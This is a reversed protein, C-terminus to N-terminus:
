DSKNLPWFVVWLFSWWYQFIVSITKIFGHTWFTKQRIYHSNIWHLKDLDFIAGSQLRNFWVICDAEDTSHNGCEEPQILDLFLRTTWL